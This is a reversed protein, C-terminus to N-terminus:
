EEAGSTDENESPEAAESPGAVESSGGGGSPGAGESRGGAGTSHDPVYLDAMEERERRKRERRRRARNGAQRLRLEREYQTEVVQSLVRLTALLAIAAVVIITPWSM